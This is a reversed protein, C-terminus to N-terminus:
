NNTDYMIEVQAGLFVSSYQTDGTAINARAVLGPSVTVDSWREASQFSYRLAMGTAVGSYNGKFGRTGTTANAGLSAQLVLPHGIEYMLLIPVFGLSRSDSKATALYGVSIGGRHIDNLEHGFLFALRGGYQFVSTEEVRADPADRFLLPGASELGLRISYNDFFSTGSAYAAGSTNMSASASAAATQASALAPTVVAVVSLTAAGLRFSGM